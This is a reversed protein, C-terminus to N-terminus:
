WSHVATKFNRHLRRLNLHIADLWWLASHSALQRNQWAEMLSIVKDTIRSIAEASTETGYMLEPRITEVDLLHPLSPKTTDQEDNM